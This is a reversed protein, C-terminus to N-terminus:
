RGTGVAVDIDDVLSTIQTEPLHETSPHDIEASVARNEIAKCIRIRAGAKVRLDIAIGKVQLGACANTGRHVEEFDGSTGQANQGLPIDLKLLDLTRLTQRAVHGKIQNLRREAIDAQLGSDSGDKSRVAIQDGIQDNAVVDCQPCKVRDARGLVVQIDVGGIRNRLGAQASGTAAVRVNRFQDPIKVEVGDRSLASHREDGYRRASNQVPVRIGDIGILRSRIASRQIRVIRDERHVREIRVVHRGALGVEKRTLIDSFLGVVDTAQDTKEFRLRRCTAGPDVISTGQGFPAYGVIQDAHPGTAVDANGGRTRYDDSAVDDRIAVYGVHSM